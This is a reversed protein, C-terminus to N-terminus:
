SHEYGSLSHRHRRHQFAERLNFPKAGKRVSKPAREITRLQPLPSPSDEELKLKGFTLIRTLLDMIENRSYEQSDININSPKYHLCAMKFASIVSAPYGSCSLCQQSLELTKAGAWTEKLGMLSVNQKDIEDQIVLHNLVSCFNYLDRVSDQLQGEAQQCGALQRELQQNRTELRGAQLATETLASNFSARLSDGRQSMELVEKNLIDEMERVWRKSDSLDEQMAKRSDAM